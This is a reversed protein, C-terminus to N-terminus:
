GVKQERLIGELRDYSTAMGDTMGTQLAQDRIEATPFLMSYTLMTRGGQKALSADFVRTVRIEGDSPLTVDLSHAM